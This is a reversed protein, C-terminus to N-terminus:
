RDSWFEPNLVFGDVFRVWFVLTVATNWTLNLGYRAFLLLALGSLIFMIHQHSGLRM